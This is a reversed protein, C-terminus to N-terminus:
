INGAQQWTRYAGSLNKVTYGHQMLVRAAYYSRQGTACYTIVLKDKPISTMQERLQPLPIVVANPIVGEEAEDDDRVDVLTYSELPMEALDHWQIQTLHGDLVNTAIMGALNIADKASGFPPAYSLELEALQRVTLKAQIATALVDMRKDVGEKGVIQAGLVVGTEKHFVLKMAMRQAGPYYGAHSAPHLHVVEIPLNAAKAPKETLGTMAATLSFVRVIATGYTGNYARYNEPSTAVINEAVIRGQRNAPGALAVLGQTQTLPNMVEIADGVAWINPVSTQLFENVQIGGKPGLTLNAQNALSAEPRVGLGLVVLDADITKGSKLVVQSAKCAAHSEFRDIRENLILDVGNDVLEDNLWQAMDADMPAMVHPNGDVLTVSLGRHQLQEAVELGIFGGGGVVVHKPNKERIWADIADMDNITRLTFHGPLGEMGAPRIPAAGPSLILHDYPETFREGTNLDTVSVTNSTPDIATVEHRIRVDLRFRQYLSEPTQLLLDDHEAIDGGLYYPLGCNAFSVHEGREFITIDAHEALRRLRAAASAGGAVGGVIIVKLPHTM